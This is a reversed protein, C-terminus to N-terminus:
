HAIEVVKEEEGEICLISLNNPVDRSRGLGVYLFLMQTPNGSVKLNNCCNAHM